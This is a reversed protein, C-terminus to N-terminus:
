TKDSPLTLTQKVRDAASFHPDSRGPEACHSYGPKAPYIDPRDLHIIASLHGNQIKNVQFKELHM